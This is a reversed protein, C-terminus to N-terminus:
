RVGIMKGEERCGGFQAIYLAFFGDVGAEIEYILASGVNVGTCSVSANIQGMRGFQEYTGTYTCAPLNNAPANITINSGPHTINIVNSVATQTVGCGTGSRSGIVLGGYEGSMNQLRLTQRQVNKAVQVGDVTYVFRGTTVTDLTFIATGVQRVGVQTPNFLGAGFYPGNTEYLPGTFTYNQGNSRMDSAVYWKTQGNTGYVFLTAFLLEQQHTLNVGWGSEDRNYWLDSVDTGWTSLAHAPLATVFAFLALIKRM